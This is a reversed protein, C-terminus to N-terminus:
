SRCYEAAYWELFVAREARDETKRRLTQLFREQSWPLEELFFQLGIQWFDQPWLLLPYLVALERGDLSSEEDYMALAKAAIRSNWRDHRLLRLILNALDHLRLDALCYDFDVLTPRGEPGILFNRASCDHHCVSRQQIADACLQQYPSAALAALSRGAEAFYYPFLHAYRACFPSFKAMSAARAGFAALQARRAGLIRPWLGWRVRGPDSSYPIFGASKAHLEALTHLALRLDEDRNFDAERSECWPYLVYTQGNWITSAEGTLTRRCSVVAAFGRARLHAVVSEVFLMDCQNLISRKLCCPGADTELRWVKRIRQTSLVALGWRGALENLNKPLDSPMRM